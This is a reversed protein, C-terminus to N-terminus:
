FKLKASTPVSVVDPSSQLHTRELESTLALMLYDAKATHLGRSADREGDVTIHEELGVENDELSSCRRKTKCWVRLMKTTVQMANADLTPISFPGLM